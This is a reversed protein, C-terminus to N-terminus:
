GEVQRELEAVEHELRELEAEPTERPEKKKEKKIVKRIKKAVKKVKKKKLRGNDDLMNSTVIALKKGGIIFEPLDVFAARTRDILDRLKDEDVEDENYSVYVDKRFLSM